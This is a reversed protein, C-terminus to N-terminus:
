GKPSNDLQKNFCDAFLSLFLRIHLVVAKFELSHNTIKDAKDLIM